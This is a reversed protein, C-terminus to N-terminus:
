GDRWVPPQPAERSAFRLLHGILVERTQDFGTTDAAEIALHLGTGTVEATALGWPFHLRARGAEQEVTIKHAFHKCMTGLLPLPRATPFDTTQRM